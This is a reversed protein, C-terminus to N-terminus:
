VIERAKEQPVLIRKAVRQLEAADVRTEDDSRHHQGPVRAQLLNELGLPARDRALRVRHAPYVRPDRDAPRRPPLPHTRAPALARRQPRPLRQRPGVSLGPALRPGTAPGHAP